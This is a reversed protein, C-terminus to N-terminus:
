KGSLKGVSQTRGLASYGKLDLYPNDLASFLLASIHKTYGEMEPCVSPAFLIKKKKPITLVCKTSVKRTITLEIQITVYYHCKCKIGM